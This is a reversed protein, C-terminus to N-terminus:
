RPEPDSLGLRAQLERIVENAQAIKSHMEVQLESILRDRQEVKGHLEAQLARIIEDREGVKAFLEDQQQGIIRTATFLEAQLACYMEKQVNLAARYAAADGDWRFSRGDAELPRTESTVYGQRMLDILSFGIRGQSRIRAGIWRACSRMAQRVSATPSGTIDILPRLESLLFHEAVLTGSAYGEAIWSRREDDISDLPDSPTGGTLEQLLREADSPSGGLWRGLEEMTRRALAMTRWTELPEDELAAGGRLYRWDENVRFGILQETNESPISLGIMQQRATADDYWRCFTEFLDYRHSHLVVSAPEYAITLGAELVSRAWLMDEAYPASPFPFRSFLERPIAGSVNRFGFSAGHDEVASRLYAERDVIRRTVPHPDNNFRLEDFLTLLDADARPITRSYVGAVHSDRLPALLMALWNDDAPLARHTLFVLNEGGARQAAENRTLGYDFDGPAVQLIRCGFLALVDVTDDSSGSDVAVIEIDCPAAQALVRPLQLRLDRAANKVPLIISVLSSGDSGALSHRRGAALERM